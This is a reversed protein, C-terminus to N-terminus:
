NILKELNTYIYLKKKACDKTYKGHAQTLLCKKRENDLFNCKKWSM